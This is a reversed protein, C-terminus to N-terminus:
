ATQALAYAVPSTQTQSRVYVDSARHITTSIDGLRLYDPSLSGTGTLHSRDQDCCDDLFQSYDEIRAFTLSSESLLQV